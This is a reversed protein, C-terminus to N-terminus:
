PGHIAFTMTNWGAGCRILFDHRTIVLLMGRLQGQNSCSAINGWQTSEVYAPLLERQLVQPTQGWMQRTVIGTQFISISM